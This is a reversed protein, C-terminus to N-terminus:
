YRQTSLQSSVFSSLAPHSPMTCLPPPVLERAAPLSCMSNIGPLDLLLLLGFLARRSAPCAFLPARTPPCEPPNLLRAPASSSGHPPATRLGLLLSAGVAIAAAPHYLLPLSPDAPPATKRHSRTLHQHTDPKPKQTQHQQPAAASHSVWLCCASHCPRRCLTSASRLAACTRTCWPRLVSPM